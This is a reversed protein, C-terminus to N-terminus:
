VAASSRIWTRYDDELAVVDLLGGESASGESSRRPLGAANELKELLSRADTEIDVRYTRDAAVNLTVHTGGIEHAQVSVATLLCVALPALRNM